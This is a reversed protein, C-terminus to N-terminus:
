GVKVLEIDFILDANPPIVGAAGYPGYALDSPISLRAATGERMGLLAQDWGPIVMGVGVPFEIPEGRDYSSDFVTGDTLQGTYHVSVTDGQQAARGQGETQVDIVLQTFKEM